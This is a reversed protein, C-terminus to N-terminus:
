IRHAWLKQYFPLHHEYLAKLRENGDISVPTNDKKIEGSGTLATHWGAVHRWEVPLEDSWSLAHELFPIGLAQCYKRMCGETDDTLDNADVVIPTEGTVEATFEFQRYQAELGVEESTLDTDLKYYSCISKAPDRILYTSRIRKLFETDDFIYDSVYYCMDKVFVPRTEAAKLIMHRIDHYATPQTPDVDFYALEKKADNVYYLYIFPEHLTTLDGRELMIREM